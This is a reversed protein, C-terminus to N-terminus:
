PKLHQILTQLTEGFRIGFAAAKGTDMLLNRGQPAFPAQAPVVLRNAEDEGWSCAVAQWVTEYANLRNACGFNYVGAPLRFCRDLQRVVDWVFTLGRHDHVAMQLPQGSHRAGALQALLHRGARLPSGPDDYMWTLRLGVSTEPLLFSVEQEARLKHIAYPGKPTRAQEETLVGGCACTNYVQDSSMYLLRAGTQRCARAVNVTGWLNVRESEDPHAACYGTNSLAATLVVWDPRYLDLLRCVDDPSSLDLDRHSLSMCRYRTAWYRAVRCGLFGGAGVLLIKTKDMM